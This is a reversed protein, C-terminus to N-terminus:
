DVSFHNHYDQHAQKFENHRGIDMWYEHIPFATVKKGVAMLDKIFDPMDKYESFKLDTLVESDIAYIGASVFYKQIPKEIINLVEQKNLKVVGYPVKMEYERICLTVDSINKEHFSLLSAFDVRTLVDGNMVLIPGNIDKPLLSIAGATGLKEKEHLYKINAGWKEGDGFYDQIQEGLYNISFYFDSFGQEILNKVIIELIPQGGVKLMPKPCDDTLPKLRSGLGGAMIIVPNNYNSVISLEDFLHLGILKNQKDLVPMQMVKFKRMNKQILEMPADQNVFKFDVFMVESALISLGKGDLLSRRVDGDTITGLLVDHKDVVMVIQFNVERNLIKLVETLPTNPNVKLNSCDRM